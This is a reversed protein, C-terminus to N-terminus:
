RRSGAALPCHRCLGLPIGEDLSHARHQRGRGERCWGGVPPAPMLATCGEKDALDKKAGAELLLRVIEVQGTTSSAMLATHWDVDKMDISAGAELLLCVIDIHGGRSAMMLATRGDANGLDPDVPLQLMSEVEAMAGRWAASALDDVQKESVAVFPLLVLCLDMPAHLLATEALSEGDFLLRQRFRPVLGHSQKLRQKLGRVDRLEELEEAPIGTLMEGSLMGIRLM